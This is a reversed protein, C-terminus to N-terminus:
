TTEDSDVSIDNVRLRVLQGFEDHEFVPCLDESLDRDRKLDCPQQGPFSLTINEYCTHKQRETYQMTSATLQLMPAPNHPQFSVGDDSVSMSLLELDARPRTEPQRAQSVIGDGTLSALDGRPLNRLLEAIQPLRFVTGEYKASLQWDTRDSVDAHSPLSREDGKRDKVTFERENFKRNRLEHEIRRQLVLPSWDDIVFTRPVDEDSEQPRQKRWYASFRSCIRILCKMDQEIYEPLEEAIPTDDDDAGGAPTLTPPAWGPPPTWM